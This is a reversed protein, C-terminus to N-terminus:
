PAGGEDDPLRRRAFSEDEVVDLLLDKFRHSRSAFLRALAGVQDLEEAADQRGTVFRSLQRAFCEQFAAHDVLARGLEAPGTFALGDLDGGGDIPCLDAPETGPEHTRPRGTSDFRELGFGIPDMLSHCGACAGQAHQAYREFKCGDGPPPQDVNVVAGM